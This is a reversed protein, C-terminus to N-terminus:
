PIGVADNLVVALQCASAHRAIERNDPSTQCRCGPTCKRSSGALLATAGSQNLVSFAPQTLRDTLKDADRLRRKDEESVQPIDRDRYGFNAWADPRSLGHAVRPELGSAVIAMLRVGGRFERLATVLQMAQAPLDEAMSLRQHAAFLPLAAASAASLVQMAAACFPGMWEKGSLHRRGFERCCEAYARAIDPPPLM